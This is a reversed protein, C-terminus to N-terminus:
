CNCEGTLRSSFVTKDDMRHRRQELLNRPHVENRPPMGVLRVFYRVLMNKDTLGFIHRFLEVSIFILKEGTVVRIANADMEFIVTFRSDLDFGIQDAIVIGGAVFSRVSAIGCLPHRKGSGRIIGYFYEV